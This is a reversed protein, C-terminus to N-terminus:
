AWATRGALKCTSAPFPPLRLAPHVQQPGLHDRGLLQAPESAADIFGQGPPAPARRHGQRVPDQDHRSWEPDHDPDCQRGGGAPPHRRAPGDRAAPAPRDPPRDVRRATSRLARRGAPQGLLPRDPGQAHDKVLSSPVAAASAVPPPGPPKTTTGTKPTTGSGANGGPTPSPPPTPEPSPPPPGNVTLQHTVSAENGGVDRVTLTVEYTGGYKYAHFVSAACPSLWPVESCPPAGPAYGSVTPSGDGFNWTYTAYTPKEVGGPFSAAANLAINSELGNFGVIEEHNVPTPATFAPVLNAHNLCGGGPQYIRLAAANFADNLYYNGAGFTQNYLSGADSEENAASSGGAVLAFVNRCEDVM